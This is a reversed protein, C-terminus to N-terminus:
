ASHCWVTGSTLKPSTCILAKSTLWAAKVRYAEGGFECVYACLSSFASGVVTVETGGDEPGSSHSFSAVLVPDIYWFPAQESSSYDVGNIAVEVSVPGATQVSPTVCRLQTPSVVAAGVVIGDVRCSAVAESNLSGFGRGHVDIFTGGTRPGVDPSIHFFLAIHQYTSRPFGHNSRFEATLTKDRSSINAAFADDSLYNVKTLATTFDHGGNFSLQLPVIGPSSVPPVPCRVELEANSVHLLTANTITRVGFRCSVGDSSYHYHPFILVVDHGGRVSGVNGSVRLLGPERFSLYPLSNSVETGDRSVLAVQWQGPPWLAPRPCKFPSPSARAVTFYVRELINDEATFKCRAASRVGDIASTSRLLIAGGGQVPGSSPILAAIIELEIYEFSVASLNGPLECNDLSCVSLRMIGAEQARPMHCSVKVDSHVLAPCFIIGDLACAPLQHSKFNSGFLVVSFGGAVPGRNPVVDTVTMPIVFSFVQGTGMFELGNPSLEILLSGAASQMPAVCLVTSPDDSPTAVVITAGFRCAAVETILFSASQVSVITGGRVSGERPQVTVNRYESLVDVPLGLAADVGQQGNNSVSLLATRQVASMVPLACVVHTDNIFLGQVSTANGFRCALLPTDVFPGGTVLINTNGHAFFGRSNNTALLVLPAHVNITIPAFSFEALNRSLSISVDRSSGGDLQIPPMVCQAAHRHLPVARVHVARDHGFHCFLPLYPDGLTPGTFTMLTGGTATATFPLMTHVQLPAHVVIALATSGAIPRGCNHMDLTTFISSSRAALNFELRPVPCKITDDFVRLAPTTTNSGFVCSYSGSSAFGRGYVFLEGGGDTSFIRPSSSFLKFLGTFTYAANDNTASASTESGSLYIPALLVQVTLSSLDGGLPEIICSISHPSHYEARTYHKGGLLCSLNGLDDRFGTGHVAVLRRGGTSPGSPPRISLVVPRMFLSLELPQSVVVDNVAAYVLASNVGLARLPHVFRHCRISGEDLYDARAFTVVDAIKLACGFNDSQVFRSGHLVVRLAADDAAAAAPLVKLLTVNGVFLFQQVNSLYGANTVLCFAVLGPPHSPIACMAGGEVSSVLPTSVTNTQAGFRCHLHQAGMNSATVHVFGGGCQLAVATRPSISHLRPVTGLHAYVEAERSLPLSDVGDRISASLIGGGGSGTGPPPVVDIRTLAKTASPASSRFRTTNVLTGRDAGAFTLERHDIYISLQPALTDPSANNPPRSSLDVQLPFPEWSEWADPDDFCFEDVLQCKFAAFSCLQESSYWPSSDEASCCPVAATSDTWGQNFSHVCITESVVSLQVSAHRNCDIECLARPILASARLLVCTWPVLAARMGCYSPSCTANSM